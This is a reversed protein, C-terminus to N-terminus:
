YVTSFLKRFYLRFLKFADSESFCYHTGCEDLFRIIQSQVAKDIRKENLVNVVFEAFNSFERLEQVCKKTPLEQKLLIRLKYLYNLIKQVEEQSIYVQTEFDHLFSRPPQTPQTIERQVHVILDHVQSKTLRADLYAEMQHLGQNVPVRKKVWEEWMHILHRYIDFLRASCSLISGKHSKLSAMDFFQRLMPQLNQKVFHVNANYKASFKVFLTNVNLNPIIFRDITISAVKNLIDSQM